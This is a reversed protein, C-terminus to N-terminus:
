VVSKRDPYPEWSQADMGFRWATAGENGHLGGPYVWKSLDAVSVDGYTTLRCIYPEMPWFLSLIAVLIQSGINIFLWLACVTAYRHDTGPTMGEWQRSRSLLRMLRRLSPLSLVMLKVVNTLQDIGLILDFAEMSVYEKRLISWRLITAYRKLSTLLNLGLCISIAITLANFVRVEDTNLPIPGKFGEWAKLCLCLLGGILLTIFFKLTGVKLLEFWSDMREYEKVHRNRSLLSDQDSDDMQLRSAPKSLTSYPRSQENRSFHDIFGASPSFTSSAPTEVTHSPSYPDYSTDPQDLPGSGQRKTASSPTPSPSRAMKIWPQTCKACVTHTRPQSIVPYLSCVVPRLSAKIRMHTSSPEYLQVITAPEGSRGAHGGCPERLRAAYGGRVQDQLSHRPLHPVLHQYAIEAALVRCVPLDSRVVPVANM